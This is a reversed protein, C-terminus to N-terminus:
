KEVSSKVDEENTRKSREPFGIDADVEVARGV